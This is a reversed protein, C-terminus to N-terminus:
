RIVTIRLAGAAGWRAFYVGPPATGGGDTSGDWCASEGGARLTRVRRGLADHITLEGPAAGPGRLFRVPEGFTPNPAAVFPSRAQAAPPAGTGAPGGRRVFIDYNGARRDKWSVFVGGDDDALVSPRVASAM